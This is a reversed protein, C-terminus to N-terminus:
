CTDKLDTIGIQKLRGIEDCMCWQETILNNEVKYISIELIEIKKGTPAIGWFPGKHTGTSHYRTTWKDGVGFIDM